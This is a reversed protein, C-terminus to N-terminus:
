QVHVIAQSGMAPVTQQASNRVVPRTIAISADGAAKAQFTLVVVPGDGSVGAVGPPRSASIAVGGSGDDRHVLAVAQGDKGLFGGVDVNILSLKSSDYQMQLPVSFVDHGGALNVTVQFTSGAKQPAQPAALQMSVPAGANAQQQMQGIANEAAVSPTQEHTMGQQPNVQPLVAPKPAPPQAPAQIRRLEISNATGTDLQQTNLPSIQTARVVHPVVLFVIENDQVEHTTSGFIYRLIPLEALGPWGSLSVNDQKTLIGGIISAEGEKLRITEEASNNLIIPQSLGGLNVQPGITSVEIKMKLTVDRDYHIQPKMNINVGVDMYQFQTNVLSSVIATAAGTQYSGTAVPYKEGIKLTAEQGDSARVRPNQLIKTDADTLLLNAQAQGITVAFNTSNLHALSNLTLGSSSTTTSTTSSTTSTTTSTTTSSTTSSTTSTTTVNANSAQFNITATQPLQIGISRTRDRSVEMVAVDIVVEPRAKDLDYIIKQALLLEDPTGRMIIANQSPVAFLRATTFVQRLATQVDNLDQQQSVNTLYFTQVAQADLETRKGRNNDAVFITNSTIPRWFTGTITGIIRLADFLSVNTLDVQVRKSTYAPDFLVNIGALKGVTQYIVRSDEVSHITIPENSLPKLEPPGGLNALQPNANPSVQAQPTQGPPANMQERTAQINQQALQNSPDIELARLFETLAGTYDGQDRLREGRRVVSAAAAFRTREYATRFRLDKPDKQFAKYFNEYAGEIDNRAEAAQGQKFWHSASQAQLSRSSGFLFLLFGVSLFALKLARHNM